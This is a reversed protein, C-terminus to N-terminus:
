RTTAGNHQPEALAPFRYTVDLATVSEPVDALVLYESRFEETAGPRLTVPLFLPCQLLALFHSQAAPEIRHGVRLTVDRTAANRARVRVRVPEGPGIAIEAPVVDVQLPLGTLVMAHFRLRISRAWGMVVRWGAQDRVLNFTEEGEVTPLSHTRHLTVLRERIFSREADPLANLAREDWDRALARIEPDNANPLVLKLRATARRDMVRTEVPTADIYSALQALLEGTFGAHQEHQQVFDAETRIRQDDASILRYIAQPEGAYLARSYEVAVAAPEPQRTCGPLVAVVVLATLLGRGAHSHM